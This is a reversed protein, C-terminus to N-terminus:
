GQGLPQRQYPARERKKYNLCRWAQRSVKKQKKDVVKRRRSYGIGISNNEEKTCQRHAKTEYINEIKNM